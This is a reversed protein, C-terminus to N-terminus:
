ACAHPNIAKKLHTHQTKTACAHPNIAQKFHVHQTKICLCTPKYVTQLAGTTNKHVPMHTKLVKPRKNFPRPTSNTCLCTPKYGKQFAGITSKHVPM